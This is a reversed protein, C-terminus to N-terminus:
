PHTLWVFFQCITQSILIVRNLTNTYIHDILTATHSTIRTPKTIVPLLDHSYLMDLYRGTQQYMHHKLLGINMDGLIYTDYKNLNIENVLEQFKLTFDDVNATPHKYICGVM